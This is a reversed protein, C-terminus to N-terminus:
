NVFAYTTKKGVLRFVARNDNIGLYELLEVCGSHFPQPCEGPEAGRALVAYASEQLALRLEKEETPAVKDIRLFGLVNMGKMQACTGFGKSVGSPFIPVYVGSEKLVFTKCHLIEDPFGPKKVYQFLNEIAERQPNLTRGM